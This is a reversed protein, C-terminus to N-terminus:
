FYCCVAAPLSPAGRPLQLLHGGVGRDVPLQAAARKGRRRARPEGRQLWFVVSTTPPACRSSSSPRRMSLPACRYVGYISPTAEKWFTGHSPALFLGPDAPHRASFFGACLDAQGGKDLLRLGATLETAVHGVSGATSSHSATTETDAEVSASTAALTPALHAAAAALRHAARSRSPM